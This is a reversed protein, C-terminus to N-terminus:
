FAYLLYKRVQLIQFLAELQEASDERLHIVPRMSSSQQPQPSTQENSQQGASGQGKGGPTGGGGGGGGGGGSNPPSDGNPQFKVDVNSSNM